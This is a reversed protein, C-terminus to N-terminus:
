LDTSTSIPAFLRYVQAPKTRNRSSAGGNPAYRGSPVLRGARVHACIVAGVMAPAIWDPLHPRVHAIHVDGDNERAARNIADRIAARAATRRWDAAVSDIVDSM